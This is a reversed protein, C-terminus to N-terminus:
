SNTTADNVEIKLKASYEAIMAEKVDTQRQCWLGEAAIWHAVGQMSEQAKGVGQLRKGDLQWLNKGREAASAIKDHYLMPMSVNDIGFRDYYGLVSIIEDPNRRADMHVRTPVILAKADANRAHCTAFTNAAKDGELGTAGVAVLNFDCISTVASQFIGESPVDFIINDYGLEALALLRSKVVDIGQTMAVAIAGITSLGSALVFLNEYATDQILHDVLKPSPNPTKIYTAFSRSAIPMGNEDETHESHQRDLGALHTADGQSDCDVLLVTQNLREAIYIAVSALVTSKGTGGKQTTASIKKTM